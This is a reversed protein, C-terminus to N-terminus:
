CFYTNRTYTLTPSYSHAHTWRRPCVKSLLWGLGRVFPMSLRSEIRNLIRKTALAEHNFGTRVSELSSAALDDSNPPVITPPRPTLAFFVDSFLAFRSTLSGLHAEGRGQEWRWRQDPSSLLWSMDMSDVFGENEGVGPKRKTRSVGFHFRQKRTLWLSIVTFCFCAIGTTSPEQTSHEAYHAM